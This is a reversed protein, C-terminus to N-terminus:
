RYNRAQTEYLKAYTGQARILEDHTGQEVVQGNGLVYIRDAVKISSLRHSILIATKGQILQRFHSFIEAEAKADLASTPEDLVIVQANRLFARALAIKQWQGLSLEEGQDFFKGLITNYGKPLSEIVQDAGSKHAAIAVEESDQAIALNGMRINEFASFYYKVFDQFIVSMERRLDAIAFQHLSIGDVLIAGQTPDYLRCLLKILTTKGSGNEGVLAIVEGPNISLNIGKLAERDTTGYQFYVDKFDIRHQIPKPFPKPDPPDTVQPKLNLFEFLNALFLNDEYLGSMGSLLNKLDNQGRQLAQYYLVLDGLHLKGLLTQQVIFGLILLISLSALSQAAFNALSRQRIIAIREVYLQKKLSAYWESFYSGIGFLRIEKAFQDNTLMWGLYSSRRENETQNRQWRYLRRSFKIRVLAAPIALVFLIGLVGWHLTLLLGVMTVLSVASQGVLELRTLIQPPRYGAELQARQLSDYYRADEYYELDAAISKAHIVEQMSDMVQQSHAANVWESIASCFLSLLTTVAVGAILLFAKPLVQQGEPSLQAAAVTDIILKILYLTSLPLIGQVVTLVTRLVTWTPSAQWMLQLAPLIHWGKPNFFKRKFRQGLKSNLM